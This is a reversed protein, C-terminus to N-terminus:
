ENSFSLHLNLWSLTFTYTTHSTYKSLQSTFVHFNINQNLIKHSSHSHTYILYPRIALTIFTFMCIHSLASHGIHHIHVHMHTILGFPWHSSHSCAYTHYPRIALTTFTFMCIHPLASHSIHFIYSIHIHPLASHSIHFIYSIHM